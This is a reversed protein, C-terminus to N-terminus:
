LQKEYQVSSESTLNPESDLSDRISRDAKSPHEDSEDIQRGDETSISESLQKQYQLDRREMLKADCELTARISSPAKRLHKDSEQTQM